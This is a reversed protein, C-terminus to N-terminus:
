MVFLMKRLQKAVLAATEAKRDSLEPHAHIQERLNEYQTLDRPKKDLFRRLSKDFAQQAALLGGEMTTEIQANALKAM